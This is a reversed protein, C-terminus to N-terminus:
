QRAAHSPMPRVTLHVRSPSGVSLIAARPGVAAANFAARLRKIAVHQLQKVAGDSRGMLAATESVTRDEFFRLRLCTRQAESLQKLAVSLMALRIEDESAVGCGPPADALTGESGCDRLDAVATERRQAASRFHDITINDAIRRLWAKFSGPASFQDIKAFARLFTESVIDDALDGRVQRRVHAALWHRHTLFIEAFADSEGAQARAIADFRGMGAFRAAGVAFADM